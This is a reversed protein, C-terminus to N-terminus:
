VLERLVTSGASTPTLADSLWASEPRAPLPVGNRTSPLNPDIFDVLGDLTALCAYGIVVALAIIAALTAPSPGGSVRVLLWFREEKIGFRLLVFVASYVAAV